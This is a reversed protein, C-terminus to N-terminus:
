DRPPFVGQLAICYHMGYGAQGTQPEADELNPLAFTTRGDGGYKTGILSFLATNQSISLIQGRCLAWGKPPFDFSMLHVEGLFPEEATAFTPAVNITMMFSLVIAMIVIKSIIKNRM